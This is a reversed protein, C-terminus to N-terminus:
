LGPPPPVAPSNFNETRILLLTNGIVTLSSLLMACVAILPNLLGSMAVPIAIINYTFSCWLNQHIKRQTKTAVGFFDLVQTPEGRMLTVDAVEKGLQSGSHVAMALNAVAMAPADNVGDGIMGVRFGRHRLDEILAAKEGPLCQGFAQPLDIEEAVHQTVGASDGSVLILRFGRAKLASVVERIKERLTDGFVFVGAIRHNYSLFVKSHIRGAATEGPVPKRDFQVDEIVYAPSGIKVEADGQRGRVGNSESRIDVLDASPIGRLAAVRKIEVGVPHQSDRELAVALSLLQDRDHEAAPLIDIL